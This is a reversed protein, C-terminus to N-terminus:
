YYRGCIQQKVSTLASGCLNNNLITKPDQNPLNSPIKIKMEYMSFSLSLHQLFSLLLVLNHQHGGSKYDHARGLM